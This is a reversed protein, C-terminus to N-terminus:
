ATRSTITHAFHRLWASCVPLLDAADLADIAEDYKDSILRETAARAGTAALVARIEAAHTDTLNPNGFRSRLTRQQTASARALAMAVLVTQKGERLDDLVSKGTLEPDGYVGLLDDRLQFAEGLPLAYGSLAQLQRGTAGALAAGLLLPREVTYKATKYRIIRWAIEPDATPTGTAALDLYQGVLTETRLANLLPWVVKLQAPTIDPSHLFEYSWGMALDGLLMATNTGVSEADPRGTHRTALARHATPHGHRTDSNDMIDDHILAFAHFMELSAAARWLVPPPPRDTIAYWGTVCLLPRIRKGGATLFDRLLGTFLTLEPLDPAAQEQEDLFDYLQTEVTTRIAAPDLPAPSASLTTM